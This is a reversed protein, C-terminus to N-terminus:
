PWIDKGVEEILALDLDFGADILKTLAAKNGSDCATIMPTYCFEEWQSPTVHDPRGIADTRRLYNLVLDLINLFGLECAIDLATELQLNRKFLDAGNTLLLDVLFCHNGRTALTLPTEGRYDECNRNM